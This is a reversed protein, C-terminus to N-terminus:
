YKKTELKVKQTFGEGKKFEEMKMDVVRCGDVHGLSFQGRIYQVFSKDGCFDCSATIESDIQITPRIVWIDCLEKGCNSCKIITHGGDDLFTGKIEEQLEKRTHINDTRNTREM